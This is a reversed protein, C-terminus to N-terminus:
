ANVLIWYATSCKYKPGFGGGSEPFDLGCNMEFQDQSEILRWGAAGELLSAVGATLNAEPRDTILIHGGAAGCAQATRLVTPRHDIPIESLLWSLFVVDYKDATLEGTVDLPFFRPNVRVNPVWESFVKILDTYVPEWAPELNINDFTLSYTGDYNGLRAMLAVAEFGPGGGLSLASLSTRSKISPVVHKAILESTQQVQTALYRIVYVRRFNPCQYHPMSGPRYSSRHCTSCRAVDADRRDVQCKADLNSYNELVYDLLKQVKSGSYDIIM